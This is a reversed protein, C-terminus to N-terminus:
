AEEIRRKAIEFYKKDKEIGIFNRNLIKAAVGTSGSGMTFDLVTDNEVSSSEILYQILHIPKQTPHHKNRGSSFEFVPNECHRNFAAGRKKGYVICEVGSLWIHQGNVPSPNKKKWVCLRTSMESALISRIESVQETSCFFYFSGSCVRVAEKIASGLNFSIVDAVGKDFNRIGNSPRNVVSYPLDTLCLDVSNDPIDKMKELCDGLILNSEM